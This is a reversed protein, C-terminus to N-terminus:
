RYFDKPEYVIIEKVTKTIKYKYVETLAFSLPAIVCLVSGTFFLYISFGVLGLLISGCVVSTLISFLLVTLTIFIFARIVDYDISDYDPQFYEIFTKKFIEMGTYQPEVIETKVYAM